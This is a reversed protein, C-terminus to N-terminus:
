RYRYPGVVRPSIYAPPPRRQMVATMDSYTGAFTDGVCRPDMGSGELSCTPENNLDRYQASAATPLVFLATLALLSIRLM